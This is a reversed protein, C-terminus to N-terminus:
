QKAYQRESFNWIGLSIFLACIIEFIYPVYYILGLELWNDWQVVDYLTSAIFVLSSYYLLFGASVWFFPFRLLNPIRLLKITEFMYMLIWFIMLLSFVTGSYVAVRQNHFDLLDPNVQIIDWVSFFVFVIVSWILWKRYSISEINNYLMGALITYYIPISANYFVVTSERISAFHFMILDIFLKVVLYALLFLFARDLHSKRYLALSIPIITVFVAICVITYKQCFSIYIETM